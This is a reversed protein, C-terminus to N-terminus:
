PSRKRKTLPPRSATEDIAVLEGTAPHDIWRQGTRSDIWTGDIQGMVPLSNPTAGGKVAVRQKTRGIWAEIESRWWKRHGGKVGQAPRPFPPGNEKSRLRREITSPSVRMLDCVEAIGILEDDSM